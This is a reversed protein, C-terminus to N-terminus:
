FCTKEIDIDSALSFTQKQKQIKYKQINTNMGGLGNLSLLPIRGKRVFYM